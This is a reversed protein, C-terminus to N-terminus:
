PLLQIVDDTVSGSSRPTSTMTGRAVEYAGTGGVVSIHYVDKDPRREILAALASQAPTDGDDSTHLRNQRNFYWAPHTHVDILGPLVTRDGLDVLRERDIRLADM